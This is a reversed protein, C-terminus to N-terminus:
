INKDNPLVEIKKQNFKNNLLVKIKENHFYFTNQLRGQLEIKSNYNM